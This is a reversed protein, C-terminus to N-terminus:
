REAIPCGEVSGRPAESDPSELRTTTQETVSSFPTHRELFVENTAKDSEQEVLTPKQSLRRPGRAFLLGYLTMMMGIFLPILGNAWIMRLIPAVEEPIFVTSALARFFLYLFLTVGLGVGTTVMGRRLYKQRREEPTITLEELQKVLQPLIPEGWFTHATPDADEIKKMLTRVLREKTVSEGPSEAVKTAGHHLAELVVSLNAGCRRCFKAKDQNEIGCTPCFM